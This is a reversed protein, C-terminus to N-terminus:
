EDDEDAENDPEAQVLPIIFSFTSGKGIDSSVWMQGGHKEVWMKAISLGLGTGGAVDRLPNDARYFPRFLKKRQEPSMGVGTDEVDVQLMNARNLFSRLVIRGNDYTYKVANSFLNFVIQTVRKQDATVLPVDDAVEISVVMNKREAELRLSQVVDEMVERISIDSLILKNKGDPRSIELIEEILNRLRNTNSKIINLYNIHDPSLTHASSLLLVDVYGKIATLPTRLEHSVDSIFRRKEEDAEIERTIDRLVAVDGYSQNNPGVVPSMSLAIVQNPDNLDLSTRYIEQGQEVQHLANMLGTYIQHSRKREASDEGYQELAALEAGLVVEAPIELVQEAAPNYLQVRRDADLVIVGETVSQLIAQSKSTEERQEVLLSSNQDALDNVFNYLQANYIAAAVVNAITGLLNMQSDTFYGENPSSLILVGLTSDTTKLPVAAVSRVEDARGQEQVWREDLRVDSICVAEQHRMVWGALGESGNFILPIHAPRVDGQDYLVARCILQSSVQDRLMISGRSVGMNTSVLELARSIISYLDLMSTLELTIAHVAELRNKEEELLTKAEELDATREIVRRELEVALGSIQDFLRANQIAQSAQSALAFAVEADEADYAGVTHSGVSLIGVLENEMLLPAGIWARTTWGLEALEAFREDGAVDSVLVPRLERAMISFLPNSEVDLSAGELDNRQLGRTETIQLLGYGQDRLLVAASDYRVVRALQDLILTQIESLALTSTFSQAVDRLTDAM